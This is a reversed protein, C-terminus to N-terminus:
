DGFDFFKALVHESPRPTMYSVAVLATLSLGVAPFMVEALVPHWGETDLVFTWILTTATGVVISAVAGAGTARRWLFAALLAPTISTGYILYATFAAALITPFQNVLLFAVFGLVLVLIRSILVVQKGDAGPNIWRQYVDRTLNTAPVLLFSDATSVVIALMTAVMLMGLGQPLVSLALTPIVAETAGPGMAGLDPMLGQAAAVSGTLGMLSIASELVIVGVVWFGVARRANGADRASCIRQYVNADGLLLLATPVFFVLAVMPGSAGTDSEAAWHGFLDTKGAAEAVAFVEDLGGVANLLWGLSFLVGLTMLVGNVVDTYVVSLMGALVTYSVAFVATLIVGTNPDISGETVISLIKGGGKFQYSVITLYAIVTTITALTSAAPGYRAELIEPVTVKGLNRVRKAIFFVLLIGLWAGCSSWLGSLGNRYGLGAGGFLSGNGIWTALLTGVLVWWPLTRGAVMFDESDKVKRAKWFGVGILALLYILSSLLYPNEWLTSLTFPEPPLESM